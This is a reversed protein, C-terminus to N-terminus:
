TPSPPDEIIKGAIQKDIATIMKLFAEYPIGGGSDDFFVNTIVNGYRGRFAWVACTHEVEGFACGLDAEDARLTSPDWGAPVVDEPTGYLFNEFPGPNSSQLTRSGYVESAQEASDYVCVAHDVRPLSERGDLQGSWSQLLTFAEDSCASYPESLQHASSSIAWEIPRWGMPEGAPPSVVFERTPLAGEGVLVEEAADPSLGNADPTPENACSALPLLLLLLTLHRSAVRVKM